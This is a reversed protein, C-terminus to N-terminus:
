RRLRVGVSRQVRNGAGDFAVVTVKASVKHGQKLARKARQRVKVKLVALRFRNRAEAKAPRSVPILRGAGAKHGRKFFHLTGRARLACAQSCIAVVRVHGRLRQRRAARVRLRLEPGPKAPPDVIPCAPAGSSPSASGGPAVRYATETTLVYVGCGSDEGFGLLSGDPITLGAPQPDGGPVGLDITRLDARCFDGYLYRGFLDSLPQDRVVYGGVIACGTTEKPTEANEYQFFPDTLGPSPPPSPCDGECIPWGLNAGGQVGANVEEWTGQGVDAVVLDGDPTFSARYPNRLGLAFIEPRASPKGVFPNSAPVDYDVGGSPSPDIRLVKGYLNATDQANDGNANDGVTIYLFGDPGFAIQGGNHNDASHPIELVLREYASDALDPDAPSRRYEIVQLDGPEAGSKGPAKAVTFVYLLGSSAYDPSFALSLLGREGGTDVNPVTLFPTPLLAGNEFIRVGGGREVVFLRPDGPPATAHIPTSEWASPPALPVLAAGSAASPLITAAAAM